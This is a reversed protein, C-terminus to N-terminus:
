MLRATSPFDPFKPGNPGHEQSFLRSGRWESVSHMTSMTKLNSHGVRELLLDGPMGNAKLM